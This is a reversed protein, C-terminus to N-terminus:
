VTAVVSTKESSDDNDINTVNHGINELYEFHQFQDSKGLFNSDVTRSNINSPLSLIWKLVVIRSHDRPCRKFSKTIGRDFVQVCYTYEGPDINVETALKHIANCVSEM